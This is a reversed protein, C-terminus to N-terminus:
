PRARWAAFHRGRRLDFLAPHPRVGRGRAMPLFLQRPPCQGDGRFAVNCAELREEGAIGLCQALATGVAPREEPLRRPAAVGTSDLPEENAAGIRERGSGVVCFADDLECGVAGGHVVPARSGGFDEGRGAGRREVYEPSGEHPCFGLDVVGEGPIRSEEASFVRMVLDVVGRHDCEGQGAPLTRDNLLEHFAAGFDGAVAGLEQSDPEGGVVGLDHAVEEVVAEVCAMRVRADELDAVVEFDHFIEDFATSRRRM